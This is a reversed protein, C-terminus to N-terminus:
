QGGLSNSGRVNEIIISTANGEFLQFPFGLNRSDQLVIYQIYSLASFVCTMSASLFVAEDEVHKLVRQVACCVTWANRPACVFLSM